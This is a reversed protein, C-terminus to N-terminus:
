LTAGALQHNLSISQQKQRYRAQRQAPTMKTRPKDRGPGLKYVATADRGMSDPLWGCIHVAEEKRLSRMWESATVPHIGTLEAIEHSTAPGELLIKMTKALVVHSVKRHKVLEKWAM